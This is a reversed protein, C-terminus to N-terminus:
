GRYALRRAHRKRFLNGIRNTLLWLKGTKGVPVDLRVTTGQGPVSHIKVTGGLSRARIQMSTSGIGPRVKALDFGCGDDAISLQFRGQRVQASLEIRRAHSHRIVNTLSEKFILFVQRRAESPWDSPLDAVLSKWYVEKGVLMRSAALQLHKMLDLSTEERVDALWLVERMASMTEQAIKNVESWDKRQAEDPSSDVAVESLMAIGALNSGIEDHIDRTLRLRLTEMERRQRFHGIVVFTCLVALAIGGLGAGSWAARRQAQTALGTEIGVLRGMENQLAQRREWSALWDPLEVLRGYSTYGDVLIQPSWDKSRTNTVPKIYSVVANTRAVNQDGSYVEMESLGFRLEGQANTALSTIKIYRAEINNAWITVPNNGSNSYNTAAMLIMPEAFDATRSAEVIFTIPFSFGPMDAGLRAHVPHLRVQQLPYVRCLDVEMWPLSRNTDPGSYIGDEQKLERRIPPGFPTRGDVLNITTWRPKLEFSGTARVDGDIAVNLNGSLIMIESLAYFFQHNEEALKTVTVRVYRGVRRNFHITAPAVGPNPFDEKTFDGVLTSDNLSRDNSLDHESVDVRFRVPFGYSSRNYPQWDVLAPILAITDIPQSEKLEIQIRPFNNTVQRTLRAHQFGFQLATQGLVPTGLEDLQRTVDKQKRELERLEPSFWKWWLEVEGRASVSAMTCVFIFLWRRM